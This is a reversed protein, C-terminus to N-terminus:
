GGWGKVRFDVRRCIGQLVRLGFLFIAFGKAKTECKFLLPYEDKKLAVVGDM